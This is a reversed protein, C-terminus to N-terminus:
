RVDKGRTHAGSEELLPRVAEPLYAVVDEATSCVATLDEAAVDGSAGHLYTGLVAADMPRIGRALLAGIVGSLVDGTGLTALGPGGTSNVVIRGGQAVLSSPGKLVATADGVALAGVSAIRDADVLEPTTGLLRAAEASHPTLVTPALRGAVLSLDDGLAHLGDADILLPVELRAVLARVVDRTSESRGLGPGLVVADARTSAELVVEVAEPLLAGHLDAPLAGKVPATLKVEVVPLAPAPVLVSVYGAGSRLAGEAALCVAGTLGPMGGVILVRGRTGKRDDWRPHPLCRAYDDLDWARPAEEFHLLAPDIGIDAVVLDGALVAGPKVMCGVKPASFTVTVSAAVAPGLVVGTDSDVGSPVDVAVVPAAAEDIARILDSYPHRPVGHLGIGLLADVIVSAEALPAAADSVEEVHLWQVGSEIADRVAERAPSSMDDPEAATLVLVDRGAERLRRAAVWGDGGNNGAGAAVVVRGEPVLAGVEDAVASGARDMLDALTAGAEVAGAEAHRAQDETLLYRM